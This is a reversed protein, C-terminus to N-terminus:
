LAEFERAVVVHHTGTVEDPLDAANIRYDIGFSSADEFSDFVVYLPECPENMHQKLRQVEYSM